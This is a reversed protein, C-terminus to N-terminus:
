RRVLVNRERIRVAKQPFMMKKRAIRVFRRIKALLIPLSVGPKTKIPLPLAGVIQQCNMMLRLFGTRTPKKKGEKLVCFRVDSDELESRSEDLLKKGKDYSKEIKKLIKATSISNNGSRPLEGNNDDGHTGELLEIETIEYSYAKSKKNECNNRKVAEKDYAGATFADIDTLKIVDHTGNEDTTQLQPEEKECFRVGSDELKSSSEDLLKEGKDYSKEINKLIKAVSNLDL